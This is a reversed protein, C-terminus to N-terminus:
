ANEQRKAGARPGPHRTNGTGPVLALGPNVFPWQQPRLGDKIPNNEVYRIARIIDADSNLYVQWFSESWPSPRNGRRGKLNQFPHLNEEALFPKARSKLHGAITEIGRDYRAVVMHVHKPLISCALIGYGAGFQADAFGRGIARAQLRTFTVPPHFLAEKAALRAARDHPNNALSRSTTVTTAQGYCALEWSWVFDSWSGRPDNPLWFGYATM